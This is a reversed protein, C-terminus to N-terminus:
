LQEASSDTTAYPKDSLGYFSGWNPWPDVSAKTFNGAGQM